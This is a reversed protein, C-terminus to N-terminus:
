CISIKELLLVSNSSVKASSNGPLEQKTMRLKFQSKRAIHSFYKKCIKSSTVFKVCRYIKPLM